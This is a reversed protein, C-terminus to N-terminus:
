FGFFGPNVNILNSEVKVPAAGVAVTVARQRDLDTKVSGSLYCAHGIVKATVGTLGAAQLAAQIAAQNAAWQSTETTLNNVVSTVGSVNRAKREAASKASSDFVTGTLTVLGGPSVYARVRGFRREGRLAESVRDGLPPVAPRAPRPASAVKERRRRERRLEAPSPGSPTALAAPPPPPALPAPTAAAVAPSPSIAYEPMEGPARAGLRTSLDAELAGIDGPGSAFILPYDVDTAGGSVAPFKWGSMATVVEADLSPNPTTSVIVAGGAVGGDPLVHLRVVMGDRLGANGELAHKYTDLLADHNADFVARASAPDRQLAGALDAGKVTVQQNRALTLSPAQLAPGPSPSAQAVPATPPAEGHHGSLHIALWIGAALAVIAAIIYGLFGALRRGASPEGEEEAPTQAYAAEDGFERPGTRGAAPPLRESVGMQATGPMAAAPPEGEAVLRTGCYNCIVEGPEARGGCTPCEIAGGEGDGGPHSPAPSAARAAGGAVLMAGDTECFTDSDPYSRGCQPCSKM